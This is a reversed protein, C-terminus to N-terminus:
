QVPLIATFTSGEGLKSTLTLDGRHLRAIERALPLGLGTGIQDQVEPNNSRFFKEFVREAEDEAIGVGTDRIEIKLEDDQRVAALTVTGGEPTYKAANGLLNVVMGSVKDKDLRAEGLKESLSVEFTMSRQKMIPRLKDAAEELLRKIDVNTRQIGISGVELSSISLLDDVFRALRTAETNITNCFEKQEEIDIMDGMALTEAYAKINALPTRLEHTATDIFQDRSAETLKQQTIDRVSWVHGGGEDGLPARALRLTRDGAATALKLESVVEASPSGNLLTEAAEPALTALLEDFAAGDLADESCLLASIARNAFEIRGESDTVAIGETLSEIAARTKGGGAGALEHLRQAATEHTAQADGEKLCDVVRNWGISALSTPTIRECRPAQDIPLRAVSSLAEEIEALPKTTRRLWWGGLGILGMPGLVAIPAYNALERVVGEWGPVAIAMVLEGAADGGISLPARYENILLGSENAYRVGDITGWRLQSGMPEIMTAGVLSRDTHAVFRGDVGVVACWALRGELRAQDVLSQTKEGSTTVLDIEISSALRGVQSLADGTAHSKLLAQVALVGGSALLLLAGLCFLLYLAVVRRPFGLQASTGIM